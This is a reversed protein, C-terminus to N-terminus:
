PGAHESRDRHEHFPRGAGARGRAFEVDKVTSTPVRDDLLQRVAAVDGPNIGSRTLEIERKRTRRWVTPVLQLDVRATRADHHLKVTGDDGSSRREGRKATYLQVVM